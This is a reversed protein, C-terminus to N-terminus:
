REVALGAKVSTNSLTRERHDKLGNNVMGWLLNRQEGDYEKYCEVFLLQSTYLGREKASGISM